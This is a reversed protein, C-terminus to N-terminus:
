GYFYDENFLCKCFEQPCIRAENLNTIFINNEEMNVEWNALFEIQEKLSKIFLEQISLTPIRIYGQCNHEMAMEKYEIDLEVLTESHESVFSIPVLVIIKKEEAARIIEKETSPGIWKLPGVKSQYCIQYDLESVKLLKVLENCTQEVQFQYPDGKKIIKEPLGHATFLIRYKSADLDKIKEQILLEYAKLFNKETPYCCIMKVVKGRDLKSAFDRLSSSTTTTSLQPYLPLLLIEDPNYENIERIVDESGPKTYRMSTFIEYGEGLIEKLKQAQSLTNELIPSKGGLHEYIEKATNERRSSIFKALPYRFITPLDIIARDYFLNFLFPKVGALDSPGGLNFLVVAKRNKM